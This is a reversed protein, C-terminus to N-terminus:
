IKRTQRDLNGSSPIFRISTLLCKLHRLIVRGDVPIAKLRAKPAYQYSSSLFDLYADYLTQFEETKRNRLVAELLTDAFCNHLNPDQDNLEKTAYELYQLGLSIDFSNLYEAM